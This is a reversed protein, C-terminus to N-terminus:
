FAAELEADLPFVMTSTSGRCDFRQEFQGGLSAVLERVITLGRGEHPETLSAGNDSVCCEVLGGSDRLEVRIEGGGNRFAHRVANTVLEHVIMGLRWCRDNRLQLPQSVLVLMVDLEDLMAGRMANGLQRIYEAADADSKRDPMQLACNLHAYSRLRKVVDGLTTKVEASESHLAAVSVCAIAVTFENGIRHNLERLLIGEDLTSPRSTIQAVRNRPTQLPATHLSRPEFIHNM